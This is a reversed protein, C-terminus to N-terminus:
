PIVNAIVCFRITAGARESATAEVWATKRGTANPHFSLLFLSGGVPTTATTVTIEATDSIVNDFRIPKKDFTEVLVEHATKSGIQVTGLNIQQPYQVQPKPQFVISVNKTALLKSNRDVIRISLQRPTSDKKPFWDTSNLVESWQHRVVGSLFEASDPLQAVERTRNGDVIFCHPDVNDTTYRLWSVSLQPPTPHDPDIIFLGDAPEILLEELVSITRQLQLRRDFQQDAPCKALLEASLQLTTASTPTQRPLLTIRADAGPPLRIPQRGLEKGDLLIRFCACSQRRLTIECAHRASNRFLSGSTENVRSPLQRDHLLIVDKSSSQEVDHVAFPNAHHPAGYCGSALIGASILLGYRLSKVGVELGSHPMTLYM